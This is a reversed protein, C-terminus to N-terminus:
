GQNDATITYTIKASHVYDDAEFVSTSFWYHYLNNNITANNITNDATNINATAMSAETGPTAIVGRHLEWTEAADSGMVIVSTVIAGDPLFVPAVLRLTGQSYVDGFDSEKVCDEPSSTTFHIGSCSWYRTKTSNDAAAFLNLTGGGAGSEHYHVGSNWVDDWNLQGGESADAHTHARLLVADAWAAGDWVKIILDVTDYYIQGAIPGAPPAALNEIVLNWAENQDFDVDGDIEHDDNWETALGQQGHVVVSKHKIGM